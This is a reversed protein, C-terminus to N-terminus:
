RDKKNQDQDEEHDNFEGKTGVVYNEGTESNNDARVQKDPQEDNQVEDTM